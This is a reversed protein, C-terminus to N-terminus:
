ARARQADLWQAIQAGLREGQEEFVFHGSGEVVRPREARPFVAHLGEAFQDGPILRDFEAWMLLAPRDDDRQASMIARGVDAGPADPDLPILTPFARIGAKFSADPFPADYAAAIERPPREHCAARVLRGVPLDERTAVLDHFFVWEESPEGYGTVVLTDSAVFRSIRDGLPGTAVRLGIPGGWDHLLLTVDHLDLEEVLSTVAEVHREYSYWEMDAPKDSRGFGPLDPAVCRYGAEVLPPVCKRFLFSWTLEGHLMLIPPGEGEDIHALRLGNWEHFRPEFPFDPLDDM